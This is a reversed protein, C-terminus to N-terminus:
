DVSPTHRNHTLLKDCTSLSPEPDWETMSIRRSDLRFTLQLTLKIARNDTLLHRSLSMKIDVLAMSILTICCFVYDYHMKGCLM